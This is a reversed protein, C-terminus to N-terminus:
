VAAARRVEAEEWPDAALERRRADAAPGRAHRCAVIRTEFRCDWLAEVLLPHEPGALQALGSALPIRDYGSYVTRWARELLPVADACGVKILGRALHAAASHAGRGLARDVQRLLLPVDAVTAHEALVDEAISQHPPGREIWARARELAPEGGLAALARRAAYVLVHHTAGSRAVEDLTADIAALCSGDGWTGLVRWALGRVADDPSWAAEAVCARDRSSTGRAELARQVEHAWGSSASALLVATSAHPDFPLAPDPFLPFPGEWPAFRGPVPAGRRALEEVVGLALSGEDEDTKEAVELVRDFPTGLATLLRACWEADCAQEDVILDVLM